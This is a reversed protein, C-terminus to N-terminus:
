TSDFPYAECGECHFRQVCVACAGSLCTILSRRIPHSNHTSHHAIDYEIEKIRSHNPYVKKFKSMAQLCASSLEVYSYDIMIDGFVEAPNIMELWAGARTNEYTAWGGDGNQFSLIVNIADSLRKEDIIRKNEPIIGTSYVALTAKIGEATCDAIPWGHDRTSFPWGGKSIHRFFEARQPVDEEVQSCDLFRHVAEITTTFTHGIPHEVYAQVAFATDWLQSGNYGQCKIGDEALWMYDAVRECHMRFRDSKPGDAHWVSLMNLFKNVPGIDIHKTQDDEAHVYRLIFDVAKKRFYKPAIREYTNTIQM